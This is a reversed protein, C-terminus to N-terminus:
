SPTTPNRRLRALVRRYDFFKLDCDDCRYPWMNLLPYLFKEVAGERAIRKIDCSNCEPCEGPIKACTFKRSM